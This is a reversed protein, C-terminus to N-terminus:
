HRTDELMGADDCDNHRTTEQLQLESWRILLKNQCCSTLMAERTTPNAEGEGLLATACGEEIVM